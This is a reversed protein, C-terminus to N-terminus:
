LLSSIEQNKQNERRVSERCNGTYTFNRQDTDSTRTRRNLFKQAVQDFEIWDSYYDVLVLYHERQWEFIDSSVKSWPRSSIEHSM